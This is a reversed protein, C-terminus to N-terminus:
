AAGERLYLHCSVRVAGTTTEEPELRSCISMALPCRPHFGCGPPFQILDLAEGPVSPLLEGRQLRQCSLLLRTYPHRPNRFVEAAPGREVIRGGYMVAVRDCTSSIADLDHSVVLMATRGRLRALLELTQARTARDLATTPEDAILLRPRSLLAMAILVRQRIGGSLQHPYRNLLGDGEVVEGLALEELVSEIERRAEVPGLARRGWAARFLDGGKERIVLAEHLQEGIAFAPNLATAHGQPILAIQRGRIHQMESESLRTLDRGEFLVSGKVIRGPQQLRLLSLFLVTKGCGSEGMIGVAESAKVDLDVGRNAQVTGEPTEFFVHLERVKLLETM